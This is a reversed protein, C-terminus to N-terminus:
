DWVGNNSIVVKFNPKDKMQVNSKDSNLAKIVQKKWILYQSSNARHKEECNRCKLKIHACEM